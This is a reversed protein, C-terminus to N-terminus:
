VISSEGIGSTSGSNRNSSFSSTTWNESFASKFASLFSRWSLKRCDPGVFAYLFPNLCSNLCVLGNALPLGIDIVVRMEFSEDVLNELISFFHHPFWCCFFAVVVAMIIKFSRGGFQGFLKRRLKFVIIFYCALIINFPIFFGIVFETVVMSLHSTHSSDEELGFSYSCKISDDMDYEMDRFYFYPTSLGLAMMWILVAILSALRLTRHNLSWVPCGVSVCRDVSIATLFFVSAFMNLFSVVSDLKCPLWGLIWEDRAFYLLESSLSLDYIFDALALNLYWMTTVTKKMQFGTLFIVLGNGITGFLLTTSYIVMSVVHMTSSTEIDDYFIESDNGSSNYSDKEFYDDYPSSTFPDM